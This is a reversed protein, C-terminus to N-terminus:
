GRPAAVEDPKGNVGSWGPAWASRQAAARQARERQARQARTEGQPRQAREVAAAARKDREGIRQAAAAERRRVAAAAAADRRGDTVGDREVWRAGSPFPHAAPTPLTRGARDHQPAAAAARVGARAARKGGRAGGGYRARQAAGYISLTPRVRDGRRREGQPTVRPYQPLMPVGDWDAWAVAIPDRTVRGRDVRSAGRPAALVRPTVEGRIPSTRGIPRAGTRHAAANRIGWGLAANRTMGALAAVGPGDVPLPLMAPAGHPTPLISTPVAEMPADFPRVRDAEGVWRAVASWDQSMRHTPEGAPRVMWGLAAAAAAPTLTALYAVESPTLGLDSGLAEPTPTATDRLASAARRESDSPRRGSRSAPLPFIPRGQPAFTRETNM